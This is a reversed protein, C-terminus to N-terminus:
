GARRYAFYRGFPVEPSEPLAILTPDALASDSLVIGDPCTLDAVAAPLWALRVKDVEPVGTTVDRM